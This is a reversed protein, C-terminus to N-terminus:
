GAGRDDRLGPAPDRWARAPSAGGVRPAAEVAADLAAAADAPSADAVETLVEGTAPAEVAFTGAQGPRWQWAILLEGPVCPSLEYASTRSITVMNM